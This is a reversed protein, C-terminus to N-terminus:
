ILTDEERVYQGLDAQHFCAIGMPEMGSLMAGSRATVAFGIPIDGAPGQSYVVVGEHEGVAESPLAALHSRLVHNGYLFNMEASAKLTVRNSACMLSLYEVATIHLRFHRTKTFKGLCVGLSVLHERPFNEARKCLSERGYYVREKHLRLVHPEDPRDILKAVNRGVFKSLKEVVLKSEEQTLPRM